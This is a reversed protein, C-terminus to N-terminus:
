PERSPRHTLRLAHRGSTSASVRASDPAFLGPKLFVVADRGDQLVGRKQVGNQRKSEALGSAM